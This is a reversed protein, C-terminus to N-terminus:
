MQCIFDVVSTMCAESTFLWTAWSIEVEEESSHAVVVRVMSTTENYEWSQEGLVWHPEGLNSAYVDTTSTGTDTIYLTLMLHEWTSLTSLEGTTANIVVGDFNQWSLAFSQVGSFTYSMDFTTGVYDTSSNYSKGMVYTPQTASYVEVTKAGSDDSTYYLISIDMSASTLTADTYNIYPQSSEFFSIQVYGSQDETVNHTLLYDSGNWYYSGDVNVCWAPYYGTANGVVFLYETNFTLNDWQYYGSADTARTGNITVYQLPDFVAPEDEVGTLFHVTAEFIIPNGGGVYEDDIRFDDHLVTKEDIQVGYVNAYALVLGLEGLASYDGLTQCMFAEDVWLTFNGNVTVNVYFDVQYWTQPNIPALTYNQPPNGGSTHRIGWYYNANMRYVGVSAIYTSGLTDIRTCMVRTNNSDPLESYWVYSRIFVESRNQVISSVRSTSGTSGDVTFNASYTGSYQETSTVTPELGGNHWDTDNWKSFDQYEEWGDSFPEFDPNQGGVGYSLPVRETSWVIDDILIRKNKSDVDDYM